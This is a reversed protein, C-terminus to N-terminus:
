MSYEVYWVTSTGPDYWLYWNNGLEERYFCKLNSRYDKEAFWKPGSNLGRKGETCEQLNQGNAISTLVSTDSCDFRLLYTPDLWLDDDSYYIKSVSSPPPFGIHKIFGEKAYSSDPGHLIGYLVLLAPLLSFFWTLLSFIQSARLYLRQAKSYKEGSKRLMYWLSLTVLTITLFLYSLYYISPGLEGDIIFRKRENWVFVIICLIYVNLGTYGWFAIKM